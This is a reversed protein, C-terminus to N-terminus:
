YLQRNELRLWEDYLARGEPLYLRRIDLSPLHVDGCASPTCHFVQGFDRLFAADDFGIERAMAYDNCYFLTSLRSWLIAGLCMVCPFGTAYLTYGRMDLRGVRRLAAVEAHMSCDHSALVENHAVAVVRGDPDTILAGFPGGRGARMGARAVKIAALMHQRHRAEQEDM